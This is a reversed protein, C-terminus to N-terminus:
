QVTVSDGGNLCVCLKDGHIISTLLGIAQVIVVCCNSSSSSISSSSSNSSSSSSGGGGGGSSVVETSGWFEYATIGIVV